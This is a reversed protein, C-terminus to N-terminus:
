ALAVQTRGERLASKGLEYSSDASIQGSEIRLLPHSREALYEPDLVLRASRREALAGRVCGVM